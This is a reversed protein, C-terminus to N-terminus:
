FLMYLLRLVSWEESRMRRLVRLMRQVTCCDCVEGRLTDILKLKSLICREKEITREMKRAANAAASAMGAAFSPM